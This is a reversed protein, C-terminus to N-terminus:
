HKWQQQLRGEMAFQLHQQHHLSIEICSDRSCYMPNYCKQLLHHCFHHGALTHPLSAITPLLHGSRNFQQNTQTSHYTAPPLFYMSPCTACAQIIDCRLYEDTIYQLNEIMSLQPSQLISPHMPLPSWPSQKPLTPLSNQCPPSSM